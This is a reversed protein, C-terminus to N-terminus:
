GSPVCECLLGALKAYIHTAVDLLNEPSGRLLLLDHHKRGREGVLDLGDAPLEHLVRCLVINVFVGLQREVAELLIVDRKLLLLLVPLEVLQKIIELEVLDDDEDLAGNPGGLEVLQQALAVEGRDSHVRADALLLPINEDPVLTKLLM